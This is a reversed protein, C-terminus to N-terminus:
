ARMWPRFDMEIWLKPSNRGITPTIDDVTIASKIIAQIKIVAAFAGFARRLSGLNFTVIERLKKALCKKSLFIQEPKKKIVAFKLWLFLRFISCLPANYFCFPKKHSFHKVIENWIATFWQISLTAIMFFRHFSLSQM